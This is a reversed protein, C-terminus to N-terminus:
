GHARARRSVRQLLRRGRDPPHLSLRPDARLRLSRAAAARAGRAVRGGPAADTAEQVIEAATDTKVPSFVGAVVTAMQPRHHPCVINAMIQGGFGPVTQVLIGRELKLDVCHASLGTGLRAALRPVAGGLSSKM